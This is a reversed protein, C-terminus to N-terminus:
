KSFSLIQNVHSRIILSDEDLVLIDMTDVRTVSGYEQQQESSLLIHGNWLKWGNYAQDQSTITGDPKINISGNKTKWEQALQTANIATLMTEGGETLTIAFRDTYNRVEGMLNGDEGTYQSSRYIDLTDGQDTIFQLTSMGTDEGLHGWITSDPLAPIVQTSDVEETNEQTEQPTPKCGVLLPLMTIALALKKRM